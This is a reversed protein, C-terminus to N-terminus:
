RKSVKCLNRLVHNASFTLSSDSSLGRSPLASPISSLRRKPSTSLHSEEAIIFTLILLFEMPVTINTVQHHHYNSYTRMLFRDGVGWIPYWCRMTTTWYKYRHLRLDYDEPMYCPITLLDKSLFTRMNRDGSCAKQLGEDFFQVRDRSYSFCFIEVDYADHSQLLFQPRIHLFPLITLNIVLLPHYVRLEVFPDFALRDSEFNLFNRQCLPSPTRFFFFCLRNVRM